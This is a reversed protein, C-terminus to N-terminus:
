CRRQSLGSALVDRDLCGGDSCEGGFSGLAGHLIVASPPAELGGRDPTERRAHAPLFASGKSGPQHPCDGNASEDEDEEARHDTEGQWFADRALACREQSSDEATVASMRQKARRLRSKVPTLAAAVKLFTQWPWTGPLGWTWPSLVDRSGSCSGRCGPAREGWCLEALCTWPELIERAPEATPLMGRPMDDWAMLLAGVVPCVPLKIILLWANM